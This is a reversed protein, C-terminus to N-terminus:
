EGGATRDSKYSVSIRRVRARARKARSRARVCVYVLVVCILTALPPPPPCRVFVAAPHACWVSRRRRCPTRRASDAVAGMWGCRVREAVVVALEGGLM